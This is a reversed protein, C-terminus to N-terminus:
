KLKSSCKRSDFEFRCKCSIHKVVTKLEENIKKIMNFVKLNVEEM